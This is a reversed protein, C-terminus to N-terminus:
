SLVMRCDVVFCGQGEPLIKIPNLDLEQIHPLDCMLQSVRQIIAILTELDAPPEGRVGQLLQSGRIEALMSQVEAASVPAVRHAVDGFVEVYVGGMGALIVPGFIPDQKGGVFVEHGQVVMKQILVPQKEEKSGTMRILAALTEYAKQAEVKSTISLLVGGAESKHVFSEGMVKMAVPFGLAAAESGAERASHAQTWSALPVSYCALIEFAEATTLQVAQRAKAEALIRQSKQQDVSFTEAQAFRSQGRASFDRSIALAHAAEEPETFMPFNPHNKRNLRWEEATTVVCLAVPKGQQFSAEKIKDV